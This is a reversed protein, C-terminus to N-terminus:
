RLWAAVSITYVYAPWNLVVEAAYRGVVQNQGVPQCASLEYPLRGRRAPKILYNDAGVELSRIIEKTDELTTLLLVPIHWLEPDQKITQCMEYGDMSPMSVDSIVLSPRQQRLLALGELGDKASVYRYGAKQLLRQLMVRQVASDEVILITKSESM